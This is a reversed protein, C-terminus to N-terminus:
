ESKARRKERGREREREREGEREGERGRERGEGIREGGGIVRGREREREACTRTLKETDYETRSLRCDFSPLIDLIERM